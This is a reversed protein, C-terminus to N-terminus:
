FKLYSDFANEILEIRNEVTYVEVVDFRVPVDRMQHRSLFQAAVQNIKRRKFATVAESPSDLFNTSRTKVEIFVLTGKYTAIIDVEGLNTKYNKHLIVFGRARLFKVAAKEGSQGKSINQNKILKSKM